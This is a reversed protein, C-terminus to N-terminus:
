DHRGQAAKARLCRIHLRQRPRLAAGAPYSRSALTLSRPSLSNISGGTHFACCNTPPPNCWRIMSGSLSHRGGAWHLTEEEEALLRWATQLDRILPGLAEHNWYRELIPAGGPDPDTVFSYYGAWNLIMEATQRNISTEADPLRGAAQALRMEVSEVRRRRGEEACPEFWGDRYENYNFRRGACSACKWKVPRQRPRPKFEPVPRNLYEAISGRVSLLAAAM